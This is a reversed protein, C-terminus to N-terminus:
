LLSVEKKYIITNPMDLNHENQLTITGGTEVRIPHLIDSIDILEETALEYVIIDNETLTKFSVLDTTSTDQVVVDKSSNISIAKDVIGDRSTTIYRACMINGMISDASGVKADTLGAGVYGKVVSAHETWTLASFKKTAIRHYYVGNEFDVENAVITGDSKVIGLGYDPLNKIAEPILLTTKVKGDASTSVVSEVLANWLEGENYPIYSPFMVNFAEITPEKGSGFMATLDFIQVNKVKYTSGSLMTNGPRVVVICNRSAIDWTFRDCVTTYVNAPCEVETRVIKIDYGFLCSVSPNIECKALYVHNQIFPVKNANTTKIGYNYGIGTSKLTITAVNSAFSLTTNATLYPEWGTGDMDGHALIQAVKQTKGGIMKVAAYDSMGSPVTKTMVATSDEQFDSDTLEGTVHKKLMSINTENTTVRQKITTDDYNDVSALRTIESDSILSKGDVKDVKGSELDSISTENTTIKDLQVQTIGDLVTKNTHTHSDNKLTSIDTANQRIASNMAAAGDEHQSIWDSMEKLTDFDEPADAVIEAVKATIAADAEEKTYYKSLDISEGTLEKIKAILLAYVKLDM